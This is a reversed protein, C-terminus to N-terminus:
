SWYLQSLEALTTSRRSAFVLFLVLIASSPTKKKQLLHLLLFFLFRFSLTNWLGPCVSVYLVRFNVYSIRM